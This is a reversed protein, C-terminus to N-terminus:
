KQVLYYIWTDTPSDKIVQGYRGYARVTGNFGINRLQEIQMEMPIYYMMCSYLQEKDNIISYEDTHVSFKSNRLHNVTGKYLDTLRKGLEFPNLTMPRCPNLAYLPSLVSVYGNFAHCERNHTSFIFYGGKNLVRYIEALILLRDDHSVLDIGNASFMCLDFQSDGYMSLNRADGCIINAVPYRRKCEDVMAQSYDIAVYDDSIMSLCPLTRGTGVGIDLIKKGRVKDRIDYLAAEEACNLSDGSYYKSVIDTNSYTEFGLKNIGAKKNESDM